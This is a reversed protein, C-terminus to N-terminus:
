ECEMVPLYVSLDGLSGRVLTVAQARATRYSVYRQKGYGRGRETREYVRVIVKEGLWDISISNKLKLRKAKLHTLRHALRVRSGPVASRLHCAMNIRGDLRSSQM